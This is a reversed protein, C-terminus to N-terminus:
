ASAAYLYMDYMKLIVIMFFIPISNPCSRLKGVANISLTLLLFTFPKVASATRISL